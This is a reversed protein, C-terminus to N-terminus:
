AFVFFNGSVVPLNPYNQKIKRHSLAGMFLPPRLTSGVSLAGLIKKASICVLFGGM